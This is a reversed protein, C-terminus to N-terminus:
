RAFTTILVIVKKGEEYRVEVERRGFMKIAHTVGREGEWSDDPDRVTREVQSWTIGRKRMRALLHDTKILAKM